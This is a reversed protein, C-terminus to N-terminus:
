KIVFLINKYVYKMKRLITNRERDEILCYMGKSDKSRWFCNSNQDQWICRNCKEVKHMDVLAEVVKEIDEIPIFVQHEYKKLKVGYISSELKIDEIHKDM